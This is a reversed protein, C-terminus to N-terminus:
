QRLEERAARFSAEDVIPRDQRKALLANMAEAHREKRRENEVAQEMLDAIIASKERFTENFAQKVEEPVSYNVTVM